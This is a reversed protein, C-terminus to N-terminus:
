HSDAGWLEAVFITYCCVALRWISTPRGDSELAEKSHTSWSLSAQKRHNYSLQRWSCQKACSFTIRRLIMKCNQEILQSTKTMTKLHILLKLSRPFSQASVTCDASSVRCSCTTVLFYQSHMVLSSYVLTYVEVYPYSQSSTTITDQIFM